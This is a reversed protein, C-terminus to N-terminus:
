FVLLIHGVYCIRRWIPVRAINPSSNVICLEEDYLKEM